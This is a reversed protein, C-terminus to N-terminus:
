EVRSILVTDRIKQVTSRKLVTKLSNLRTTCCPCIKRKQGQCVNPHFAHSCTVCYVWNDQIMRQIKARSYSMVITRMHVASCTLDQYITISNAYIRSCEGQCGYLGKVKKTLKISTIIVPGNINSISFTEAVVSSCKLTTM